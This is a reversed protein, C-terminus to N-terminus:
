KSTKPARRPRTKPFLKSIESRDLKEMAFISASRELQVEKMMDPLSYRVENIGSGIRNPLPSSSHSM